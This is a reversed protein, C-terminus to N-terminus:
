ADVVDDENLLIDFFDSYIRWMASNPCGFHAVEDVFGPLPRIHKGRYTVIVSRYSICTRSLYPCMILDRVLGLSPLYKLFSHDDSSCRYRVEGNSSGQTCHGVFVERILLTRSVIKDLRNTLVCRHLLSFLPFGNCRRARTSM